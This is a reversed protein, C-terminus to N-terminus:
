GHGTPLQQVNDFLLGFSEATRITTAIRAKPRTPPYTM